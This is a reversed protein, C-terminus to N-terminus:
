CEIILEDTELINKAKVECVVGDRIVFLIHDGTCTVYYDYEEFTYMTENKVFKRSIAYVEDDEVIHNTKVDFSKIKGYIPKIETNHHFDIEEDSITNWLEELTYTDGDISVRINPLLCSGIKERCMVMKSEVCHLYDKLDEYFGTIIPQIKQECVSDIFDAIKDDDIEDPIFRDVIDDFKLFISNHVLIDNAFFNHNDEVEIDYVTREVIGLDELEFDNLRYCKKM